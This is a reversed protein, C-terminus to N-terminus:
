TYTITGDPNVSATGSSAPSGITVTLPDSNPDSDNGLVNINVLTAEQTVSSDDVANPPGNVSITVTATSVGLKDDSVVYEFTDIGVFGPQPRFLKM